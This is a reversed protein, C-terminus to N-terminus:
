PDGWLHEKTASVGVKSTSQLSGAAGFAAVATLELHHSKELHCVYKLHFTFNKFSKRWM